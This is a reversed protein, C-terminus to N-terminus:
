MHKSTPSSQQNELLMECLSVFDELLKASEDYKILFAELSGVLPPLALDAHVRDKNLGFFVKLQDYDIRAYSENLGAANPHSFESLAEYHDYYHAINKGMEDRVLKLVHVPDLTRGLKKAQTAKVGALAKSLFTRIEDINKTKLSQEIKDLFTWFLSETEMIARAVIFASILRDKSFDEYASEVLESIRHLCAERLVLARCPDIAKSVLLPAEIPLSNKLTDSINKLKELM